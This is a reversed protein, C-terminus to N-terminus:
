RTIKARLQRVVALRANNQEVNNRLVVALKIAVYEIMRNNYRSGRAPFYKPSVYKGSDCVVVTTVCSVTTLGNEAAMSSGM